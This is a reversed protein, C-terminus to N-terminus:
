STSCQERSTTHWGSGPSGPALRCMSSSTPLKATHCDTWTPCRHSGSNSPHCRTLAECWAACREERERAVDAPDEDSATESRWVPLPQFVRERRGRHISINRAITFISTSSDGKYPSYMGAKRWVTTMVKQALELATANYAGQGLTFGKIRPADRAFLSAYAPEDQRAVIASLWEIELKPDMGSTKRLIRVPSLASAVISYLQRWWMRCLTPRRLRSASAAATRVPCQGHCDTNLGAPRSYRKIRRQSM